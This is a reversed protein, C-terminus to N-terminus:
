KKQRVKEHRWAFPISPRVAGTHDAGLQWAVTNGDFQGIGYATM